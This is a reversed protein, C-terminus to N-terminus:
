IEETKKRIFNEYHNKIQNELEELSLSTNDFVATAYSCREENSMQANIRKSADEESLNNRHMLREIAVERDAKMVWVQNMLDQWSAEIM